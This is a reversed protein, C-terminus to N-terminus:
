AVRGGAAAAAQGYAGNKLEDLLEVHKIVDAQAHAVIFGALLKEQTRQRGEIDVNDHLTRVTQTQAGRSFRREPQVGGRLLGRGKMQSEGGLRTRLNIREVGRCQRGTALVIASRAQARVVVGVIVTSEHDTWVAVIDFRNAM